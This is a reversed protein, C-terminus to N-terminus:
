TEPEATDPVSIAAPRDASLLDAAQDRLTWAPGALGLVALVTLAVGGSDCRAPTARWLDPVRHRGHPM